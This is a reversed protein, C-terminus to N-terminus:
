HQLFRALADPALSQPVDAQLLHVGRMEDEGVIGEVDDVRRVQDADHGVRDLDDRSIRRTQLGPPLITM